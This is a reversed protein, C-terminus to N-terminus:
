GEGGPQLAVDAHANSSEVLAQEPLLVGVTAKHPQLYKIAVAQVQQPTVKRLREVWNDLTNAPLGVSVLSGLVVAQSQISDQHFVYQAEAQTLVRQLEDDSVLKSQVQKIQLWLAAEAEAVTKGKSPMISLQFLSLLRDTENYSASAAAALQSGRVLQKTFRASDDGDLVNALVSLAFVEQQALEDKASVLTPVHFGMVVNPSSVKGFVQIRREGKQVIETQPKPPVIESPKLPGYYAKALEYVQKPEVDGVVVLAANNPAYWRQYWAQVDEVKYNLIDDMWGIVPHHMPSNVFATAMFQERLQSEPRDEVRWRREEAIVSREKIFEQETVVLNRMRDAEMKMVSQLYQKGIVQYYATYDSSTFANEQGGMQSVIKSFEGPAYQSTGKFMMHELMHTLGTQGNLEFNSGVRYWVQHVVVPARHDAKVYVDMGNELQYYAVGPVDNQALAPGSMVAFLLACVRYFRVNM